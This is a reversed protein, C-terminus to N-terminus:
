TGPVEDSHATPTVRSSTPPQPGHWPSMPSNPGEGRQRGTLGPNTSSDPLRWSRCSRPKPQASSFGRGFRARHQRGTADAVLVRQRGALRGSGEFRLLDCPNSAAHFDSLALRTRRLHGRPEGRFTDDIGPQDSWAGDLGDDVQDICAALSAPEGESKDGRIRMGKLDVNRPCHRGLPGRVNGPATV